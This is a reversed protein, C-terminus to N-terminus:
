CCEKLISKHALTGEAKPAADRVILFVYESCFCWCYLASLPITDGPERRELLFSCALMFIALCFSSDVRWVTSLCSLSMIYPACPHHTSLIIKSTEEWRLSQLNKLCWWPGWLLLFERRWACIYSSMYLAESGGMGALYWGSAASIAFQLFCILLVLQWVGINSKSGWSLVRSQNGHSHCLNSALTKYHAAGLWVPELEGLLMDAGGAQTWGM